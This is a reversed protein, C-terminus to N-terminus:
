GGLLVGQITLMFVRSITSRKMYNKMFRSAQQMISSETITLSELSRKSSTEDITTIYLQDVLLVGQIILAFVGGLTSRKTFNTM